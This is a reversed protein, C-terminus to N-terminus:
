CVFAGIDVSKGICGAGASSVDPDVLPFPSNWELLPDGISRPIASCAPPPAAPGLRPMLRYMEVILRKLHNATSTTTAPVAAPNAALRITL